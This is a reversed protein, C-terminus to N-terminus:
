LGCLEMDETIFHYKNQQNYYSYHATPEYGTFQM